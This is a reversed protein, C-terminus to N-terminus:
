KKVLKRVFVHGDVNVRLFYLDKALNVASVDLVIESANGFSQQFFNAGSLSLLSAKINRATKALRLKISNDFPNNLVWLRQSGTVDKLLITQSYMSNGDIDVM